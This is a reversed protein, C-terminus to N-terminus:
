LIIKIGGGKINKITSGRLQKSIYAKYFNERRTDGKSAKAATFTLTNVEPHKSLTKKVIALVTAMVRYQENANTEEEYQGGETSFAIDLNTQSRKKTEVDFFKLDVEYTTGPWPKGLYSRNPDPDTKFKYFVGWDNDATLTDKYPKANGEGIEKLVRQTEETEKVLIDKLRIM